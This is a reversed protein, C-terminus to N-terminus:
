VPRPRHTGNTRTGLDAMMWWALWIAPSLLVLIMAFVLGVGLYM